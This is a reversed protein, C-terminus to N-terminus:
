YHPNKIAYSLVWTLVALLFSQPLFIGGIVAVIFPIDVKEERFLSVWYDVCYKLFFGNIILILTIVAFSGIVVALEM